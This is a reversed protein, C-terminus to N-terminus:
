STVEVSRDRKGAREHMSLRRGDNLPGVRRLALVAHQSRDHQHTVAGAPVHSACYQGRFRHVLWLVLGASVLTSAQLAIFVLDGRQVAVIGLLTGSVVWMTWARPSVGSSCHERWLHVVQPVYAAVSVAIGIMGVLEFMM